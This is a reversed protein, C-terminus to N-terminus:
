VGGAVRRGGAVDITATDNMTLLADFVRAVDSIQVPDMMTEGFRQPGVNHRPRKPNHPFFLRVTIVPFFVAYSSALAEAARKTNAHFDHTPLYVSGTSAMLFRKVGRDKAFELLNFTSEVNVSFMDPASLPFQKCFRSQALHVITETHRSLKTKDLHHVLDQRVWHIEKPSWEPPSERVLACVEHVGAWRKLLNSGIFGTGGTILIKM